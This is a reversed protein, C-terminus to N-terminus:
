AARQEADGTSRATGPSTQGHAGNGRWDFRHAAGLLRRETGSNERGAAVSGEITQRKSAPFKTGRHISVKGIREPPRCPSFDGATDEDDTNQSREPAECRERVVQRWRRADQARTSRWDVHAGIASTSANMGAAKTMNGSGSSM